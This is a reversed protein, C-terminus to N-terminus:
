GVVNASLDLVLQSILQDHAFYLPSVADVIEQSSHGYPLSSQAKLAGARQLAASVGAEDAVMSVALLSNAAVQAFPASTRGGLTDAPGQMGQVILDSLSVRADGQVATVRGALSLASYDPQSVSGALLASLDIGDNASLDAIHTRFGQAEVVAAGDVGEVSILRFVDAGAGGMMRVSLPQVSAAAILLDAGSGGILLDDGGAASSLAGESGPSAFLVDDGSGGSATDWGDAGDVWDDGAGGALMDDGDGGVITDNGAGGDILNAADNGVIVNAYSNGYVDAYGNGLLMFRTVSASEAMRVTLPYSEPNLLMLRIDNVAVTLSSSDPEQHDPSVIITDGASASALALKITKFASTDSASVLKIPTGTNLLRLPNVSSTSSGFQLAEAQVFVADSSVSSQIAYLPVGSQYSSGVSQAIAAETASSAFKVSYTSAANPLRATDTGPGGIFTDGATLNIATDDGAYGLVLARAAVSADLAADAGASGPVTASGPVQIVFDPLSYGAIGSSSGPYTYNLTDTFYDVSVRIPSIETVLPKVDLVLSVLKQMGTHTGSTEVVPDVYITQSPSATTETSNFLVAIITSTGGVLGTWGAPLTYSGTGSSLSADNPDLTITLAADIAGRFVGNLPTIWVELALKGATTQAWDLVFVSAPDSLRTDTAM